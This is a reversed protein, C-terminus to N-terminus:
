EGGLGMELQRREADFLRNSMKDELILREVANLVDDLKYCQFKDEHPPDRREVQLGGTKGPSIQVIM